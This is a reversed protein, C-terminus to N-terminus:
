YFFSECKRKWTEGIQMDDLIRKLFPTRCLQEASLFISFIINGRRTKSKETRIQDSHYKLINAKLMQTSRVVSKFNEAVIDQLSSQYYNIEDVLFYVEINRLILDDIYVKLANFAEVRAQREKRWIM